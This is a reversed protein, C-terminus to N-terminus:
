RLQPLPSPFFCLFFRRLVVAVYAKNRPESALLLWAVAKVASAHLRLPGRRRGSHTLLEGVILHRGRASNMTNVINGSPKFDWNSGFKHSM